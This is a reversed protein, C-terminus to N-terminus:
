KWNSETKDNIYEECYLLKIDNHFNGKQDFVGAVMAFICWRHKRFVFFFSVSITCNSQVSWPARGILSCRSLFQPCALCQNDFDFTQWLQQINKEFVNKKTMKQARINFGTQFRKKMKQYVVTNTKIWISPAFVFFEPMHNGISPLSTLLMLIQYVEIM